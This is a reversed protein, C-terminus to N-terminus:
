PHTRGRCYTAVAKTAEDQWNDLWALAQNLRESDELCRILEIPRRFPGSVENLELVGLLVREALSRLKIYDNEGSVGLDAGHVVRSRLEYLSYVEQPDTFPRDLAVSLLMSRLAIAEGKRGDDMTTLVTELATCLDVVQHDRYQRTISVGIWEISRLLADRFRGQITGDYLPTLKGIFENASDVRQSTLVLDIPDTILGGGTSMLKPEPSTERIVRAQGRRQLLERDWTKSWTFSGVCIRLTNLAREFSDQAREAAKRASRGQATVIGVPLGVIGCLVERFLGSAKDFEWAQALEQTFERFVVNGITLSADNLNINEVSFAVEYHTPPVVLDSFFDGVKRRIASRNLRGSRTLDLDRVLAFLAEDLNARTLHEVAEEEELAKLAEQYLRAHKGVLFLGESSGDEPDAFPSSTKLVVWGPHTTPHETAPVENIAYALSEVKSRTLQSETMLVNAGRLRAEKRLQLEHTRDQVSVCQPLPDLPTFGTLQFPDFHFYALTGSNRIIIGASTGTFKGEGEIGGAPCEIIGQFVEAPTRYGSAGHPRHQNYFRFYAGPIVVVGKVLSAQPNTGSLLLANENSRRERKALGFDTGTSVVRRQLVLGIGLHSTCKPSISSSRFSEM